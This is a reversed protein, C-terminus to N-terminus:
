ATSDIESAGSTWLSLLSLFLFPIINQNTYIAGALLRSM